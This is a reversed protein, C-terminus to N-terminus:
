IQRNKSPATRFELLVILYDRLFCYDTRTVKKKPHCEFEDLLKEAAPGHAKVYEDITDAKLYTALKVCEDEERARDDVSRLKHYSAKLRKLRQIFTMIDEFPVGWNVYKKADVIYNVFGILCQVYTAMIANSKVKGKVEVDRYKLFNTQFYKEDFLPKITESLGMGRLHRLLCASETVANRDDKVKGEFISKMWGSYEEAIKEIASTEDNM